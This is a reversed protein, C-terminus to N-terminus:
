CNSKIFRVFLLNDIFYIFLLNLFPYLDSLWISCIKKKNIRKDECSAGGRMYPRAPILIEM